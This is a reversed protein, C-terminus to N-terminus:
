RKEVAMLAKNSYVTTFSGDDELLYASARVSITQGVDTDSLGWLRSLVDATQGVRKLEVEGERGRALVFKCSWVNDGAAKDGNKINGDDTLLGLIYMNKGDEYTRYIEVKNKNLKPHQTIPIEAIIENQQDIYITAPKVSLTGLLDVPKYSVKVVSTYIEGTNSDKASITIINEGPQLVVEAVRWNVTGEALGSGGRNNEWKVSDLDKVSLGAVTIKSESTASLETFRPETIVIDPLQREEKKAQPPQSEEEKDGCGQILFALGLVLILLAHFVAYKKINVAVTSGEKHTKRM